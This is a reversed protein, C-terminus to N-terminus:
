RRRKSSSAISPEQSSALAEVMPALRRHLRKLQDLDREVRQLLGLEDYHRLARVSLGTRNALEGIQWRQQENVGM